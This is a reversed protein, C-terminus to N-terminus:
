SIAECNMYVCPNLSVNDETRIEFHVHPGTTVGTTGIRGIIDGKMVTDGIELSSPEMMHGYYTKFGNNHDIVIYNGSVSDYSKESVVGNDSAYVYGYREYRNVIDIATHSNNGWWDYGLWGNTIHANEVPWRFSGTGTDPKENTGVAIIAQTPQTLISQSIERGSMLVGNVWSEEYLVYAEGSKEEQITESAGEFLDLDELVIAQDPYIEELALSEKTVYIHIPSTFYTVNLVMGPQLIQDVSFIQNRNILMVQEPTLDGNLYGVSQLTDGERVTYYEFDDNEGYCLYDFVEESDLMIDDPDAVGLHSTISEGIRYGTSRTGVESMSERLGSTSLEERESASIFLNLFDTYAEQYDEIDRVYITAFIGEDTAFDIVNTVIGFADNAVLYDFLVLDIDEVEYYAIESAYYFDGCFNMYTDPFTDAYNERYYEEIKDKFSEPDNVIGILDGGDYVRYYTHAESTYALVDQDLIADVKMDDYSMILTDDDLFSIGLVIVISAIACIMAIFVNKM